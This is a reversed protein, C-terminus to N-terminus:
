KMYIVVAQPIIVSNLLLIQNLGVILHVIINQLM